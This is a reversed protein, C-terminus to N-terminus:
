YGYAEPLLHTHVVELVHSGLQQLDLSSVGGGLGDDSKVALEVHAAGFPEPREETCHQRLVWGPNRDVGV